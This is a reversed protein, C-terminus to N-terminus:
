KPEGGAKEVSFIFRGLLQVIDVSDQTYEINGGPEITDPSGGPVLEIYNGGLLGESAIAATSDVTFIYGEDVTMTVVARFSAPDLELATVSGISIGSVRIDSGVKVGGIKNFYATIEYGSSARLSAVSYALVIFMAAVVLVVAGMLTEIINRQM